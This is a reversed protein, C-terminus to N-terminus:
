RLARSIQDSLKTSDEHRDVVISCSLVGIELGCARGLAVKSDVLVYRVGKQECLVPLPAVLCPPTSDNAIVVIVATSNNVSKIAQNLGVKVRKQSKLSDILKYIEQAKKENLVENEM